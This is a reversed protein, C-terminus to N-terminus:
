FPKFMMLWLILALGGGGIATLLVPHTAALLDALQEEASVALQQQPKQPSRSPLMSPQVVQRIRDLSRAGVFTMSLGIVVLVALSVWIWRHTWWNGMFGATVGAALMILLSVNAVARTSRSLDLLARIREVAREGRLKFTVVAAAGHGLLFGFVGLVHAFVIWSYM